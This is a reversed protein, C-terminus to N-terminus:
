KSTQPQGGADYDLAAGLAALREVVEGIAKCALRAADVPRCHHTTPAAEPLHHGELRAIMGRLAGAVTHLTWVQAALSVPPLPAGRREDLWGHVGPQTVGVLAAIMRESLGAGAASQAAARTDEDLQVLFRRLPEALDRLDRLRRLTDAAEAVTDAATTDATM